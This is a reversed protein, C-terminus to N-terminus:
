LKAETLAWIITTLDGDDDLKELEGRDKMGKGEMLDSLLLGSIAKIGFLAAATQDVGESPGNVTAEFVLKM